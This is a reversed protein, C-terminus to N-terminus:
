DILLILLTKEFGVIGMRAGRIEQIPFQEWIKDRKQEDLRQHNKAFWM